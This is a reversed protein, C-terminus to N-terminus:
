LADTRHISEILGEVEEDDSCQQVQSKFWEVEERETKQIQYVLLTGALRARTIPAHPLHSLLTSAERYIQETTQEDIPHQMQLAAEQLSQQIAHQLTQEDDPSISYSM